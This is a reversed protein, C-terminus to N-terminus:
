QSSAEKGNSSSFYAFKGHLLAWFVLLLRIKGIEKKGAEDSAFYAAAEEVIGRATTYHNKRLMYKAMNRARKIGKQNFSSDCKAMSALLETVSVEETIPDAEGQQRCLAAYEAACEFRWQNINRSLQNGSLRYHCFIEDTRKARYGAEQFRLALDVDEAARFWARFGVASLAERKFMLAPGIPINDKPKNPKDHYLIKGAEDIFSLRCRVASMHPNATLFDVQAQLRNPLQIDDDDAFAVFRSNPNSALFGANRAGALGTNDQRLVKVRADKQAYEQAIAHPRSDASGDDVIILEFDSLTQNLVSEIAEALFQSRNYTAMIVSVQPANATSSMTPM